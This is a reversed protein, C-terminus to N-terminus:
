LEMANLSEPEGPTVFGAKTCVVIEDRQLQQLAAGICQESRQHRYNIATDFWNVGGEAAAILAEIYARDAEGDMTGLYASIGLRSAQLGLVTRYVGGQQDEPQRAAVRATGEATAYM